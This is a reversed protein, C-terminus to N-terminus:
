ILEVKAYHGSSRALAADRTVLPAELRESLALYAADYATVNQRLQWIRPLFLTHPYRIMRFTAFDDLATLGRTPDLKEALSYRRLAQSVEVDILHPAHLTEGTAFLRTGIRGAAPTLLLIEVIVSADVVIV